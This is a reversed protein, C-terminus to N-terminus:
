ELKLDAMFYITKKLNKRTIEKLLTIKGVQRVGYIIGLENKSSDIIQQLQKLEKERGIFM